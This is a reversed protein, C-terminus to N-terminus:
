RGVPASAPPAPVASARSTAQRQQEIQILIHLAHHDDVLHWGALVAVMGLAGIVLPVLLRRIM